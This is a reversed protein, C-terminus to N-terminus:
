GKGKEAPEAVSAAEAGEEAAPAVEEKPSHVAVIPMRLDKEVPHVGEPFKLDSLHFIDGVELPTVDVEIVEPVNDPTCEIELSRAMVELLGGLETGVAKGKMRLPVEVRFKRGAAVEYFDVHAVRDTLPHYQVDKLVAFAETTGAGDTVTMKVMVTGHRAKALFKELPRGEFELSRTQLGKGYIIGPVRGESRRKRNAEKGTDRRSTAALEMMAM